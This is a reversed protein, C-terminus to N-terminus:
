VKLLKLSIRALLIMSYQTEKTCKSDNVSQLICLILSLVMAAELCTDVTASPVKRSASSVDRSDFSYFAISEMETFFM